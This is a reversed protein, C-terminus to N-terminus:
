QLGTVFFKETIYDRCNSNEFSLYFKYDSNLMEFCKSDRRSCKLPGCAGYIDVGIYKSLEQAYEKRTNRAGCNSVFWAVKKTKGAAYSKNQPLTRINEDFPVFKEYPAVIDSDHRYTATWNYIEGFSGLGPTHYPSELMFLIWIQNSPRQTWPRQPSHSFIVADADKADNRNDTLECTNVLCKQEKFTEQGRKVAWGGLGTYLLIKKLPVQNGKMEAETLWKPKYKLQNTIRDNDYFKKDPWVVTKDTLETYEGHRANRYQKAVDAHATTVNQAVKREIVAVNVNEIDIKPKHVSNPQPSKGLNSRVLHPSEASPLWVSRNYFNFTLVLFCFVSIGWTLTKKLRFRM